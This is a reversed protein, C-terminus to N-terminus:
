CVMMQLHQSFLFFQSSSSGPSVGGFYKPLCSTTSYHIQFHLGCYLQSKYVRFDLKLFGQLTTGSFFTVFISMPRVSQCISPHVSLPLVTYWGGKKLAPPIFQSYIEYKDMTNEFCLIKAFLLFFM